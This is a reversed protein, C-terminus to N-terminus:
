EIQIVDKLVYGFTPASSDANEEYGQNLDYTDNEDYPNVGIYDGQFVNYKEQRFADITEDIKSQTVKGESKIPYLEGM